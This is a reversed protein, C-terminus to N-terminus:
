LRAPLLAYSEREIAQGIKAVAEDVLNYAEGCAGGPQEEGALWVLTERLREAEGRADELEGITNNSM